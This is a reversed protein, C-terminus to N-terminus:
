RGGNTVLPPPGFGCVLPTELIEGWGFAMGAFAVGGVVPNVGEEIDAVDPVAFLTDMAM